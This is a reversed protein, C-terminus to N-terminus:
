KSFFICFTVPIVISFVNWFTWARKKLFHMYIYVLKFMTNIPTIVCRQLCVHVCVCVCVCMTVTISRDCLCMSSRKNHINSNYINENRTFKIIEWLGIAYDLSNYFLPFNWRQLAGKSKIHFSPHHVFKVAVFFMTFTGHFYM